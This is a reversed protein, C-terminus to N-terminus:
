SVLSKMVRAPIGFALSDPPIDKVVISGAGLFSRPGISTGCLLIARAGVFCGDYIHVPAQRSPFDKYLPHSSFGVDQHTYICVQDGLTVWDGLSIRDALDFLVDDGIYCNKGV